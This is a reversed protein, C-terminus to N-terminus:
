LTKYANFMLKYHVLVYIQSSMHSMQGTLDYPHINYECITFNHHVKKLFFITHIAVFCM